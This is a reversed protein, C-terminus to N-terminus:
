FDVCEGEEKDEFEREEDVEEEEEDDDDDDIEGIPRSTTAAVAECDGDATERAMSGRAGKWAGLNLDTSFCDEGEENDEDEEDEEVADSAEEEEEALL